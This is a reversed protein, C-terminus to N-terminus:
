THGADKQTGDQSGTKLSQLLHEPGPYWWSSSKKEPRVKSSSKNTLVNINVMIFLANYKWSCIYTAIWILYKNHWTYKFAMMSQFDSTSAIASTQTITPLYTDYGCANLAGTKVKLYLSLLFLM